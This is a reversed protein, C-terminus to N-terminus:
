NKAIRGINVIQVRRNKPSLPEAPFKLSTKGRGYARLRTPDIAFTRVLHDLVAQARRESLFQNFQQSGKADTHGILVLVSGALRPDTLAKGISVMTESANAQIDASNYDFYVEIDTSPLKGEKALQEVEKREGEAGEPVFRFSRKRRPQPKYCEQGPQCTLERVLAEPDLVPAQAAAFPISGAFLIAYLCAAFLQLEWNGKSLKM